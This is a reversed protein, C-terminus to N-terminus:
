GVAEADHMIHVINKFAESVTDMEGESDEEDKNVHASPMRCKLMLGPASMHVFFHGDPHDFWNVFEDWMCACQVGQVVTSAASEASSYRFLLCCLPTNNYGNDSFSSTDDEDQQEEGRLAVRRYRVDKPVKGTFLCEFVLPGFAVTAHAIM